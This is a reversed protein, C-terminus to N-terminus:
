KKTLTLKKRKIIETINIYNEENNQEELKCYYTATKGIHVGIKYIIENYKIRYYSGFATLGPKINNEIAYNVIENYLFRLEENNKESPNNLINIYEEKM